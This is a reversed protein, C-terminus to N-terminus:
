YKNTLKYLAIDPVQKNNFNRSSTRLLFSRVVPKLNKKKLKSQIRSYVTFYINSFKEKLAPRNQRHQM